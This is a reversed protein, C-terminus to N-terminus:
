FMNYIDFKKDLSYSGIIDSFTSIYAYQDINTYQSLSDKFDQCIEDCEPNDGKVASDIHMYVDDFHMVPKYQPKVNPAEFLEFLRQRVREGMERDPMSDIIENNTLCDLIQTSTIEDHM